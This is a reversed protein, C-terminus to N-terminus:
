YNFQINFYEVTFLTNLDCFVTVNKLCKFIEFKINEKIYLFMLSFFTSLFSVRYAKKEIKNNGIQM